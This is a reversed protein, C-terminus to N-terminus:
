NQELEKRAEEMEKKEQRLQKLEEREDSLEQVYKRSVSFRKVGGEFVVYEHKSYYWHGVVITLDIYDYDSCGRDGERYTLRVRDGDTEPNYKENELMRHFTILEDVAKKTLGAM